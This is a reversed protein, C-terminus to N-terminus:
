GRLTVARKASRIRKETSPIAGRSLDIWAGAYRIHFEAMGGFLIRRRSLRIERSLEQELASIMEKPTAGQATLTEFILPDGLEGGWGVSFGEQETLLLRLPLARDWSLPLTIETNSDGELATGLYWLAEGRVIGPPDVHTLVGDISDILEQERVTPRERANLREDTHLYSM